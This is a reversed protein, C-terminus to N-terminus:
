EEGGVIERPDVWAKEREVLEGQRLQERDLRAPDADPPFGDEPHRLVEEDADSLRPPDDHMTAEEARASDGERHGTAAAAM